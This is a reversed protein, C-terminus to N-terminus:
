ASPGYRREVEARGEPCHEQYPCWACLPGTTPEFTGSREAEVIKSWTSQLTEVAAGISSDTVDTDISRGRVYLLRAREARMGVADLAAAYLQVQHLRDAQFREGPPKGTKYDTVVVHGSRQEVLDVIGVFPVGDLEVELRQEREIVEVRAPDEIAFYGEVLRWADWRVAKGAAQDLGLDVYAADHEIEPWLDRALTKAVDLSRCSPEVALLEELVRHVFTGVLAAIGPPDPLKDVYRFGWRRQCQRFTSASSPSVFRGREPSVSAPEVSAPSPVEATHGVPPVTVPSQSADVLCREVRVGRRRGRVVTAHDM